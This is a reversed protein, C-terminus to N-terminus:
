KRKRWAYALLSLVGTALLTVAAPEPVSAVVSVAQIGIAGFDGPRTVTFTLTEGATGSIALNLVGYFHNGDPTLPLNVNSASYSAGSGSLTASLNSQSAYNVLYVTLDESNALLTHTFSADGSSYLFNQDATASTTPTGNAFSLYIQSDNGVNTGPAAEKVLSVSSFSDPGGSKV